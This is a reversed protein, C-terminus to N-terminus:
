SAGSAPDLERAHERAFEEVRDRVEGEPAVELCMEVASRCHPMDGARFYAYVLHELCAEDEPAVHHWKLFNALALPQLWKLDHERALVSFAKGQYFYAMGSSRDDLKADDLNAIISLSLEAVREMEGREYYHWCILFDLTDCYAHMVATITGLLPDFEDNAELFASIAEPRRDDSAYERGIRWLLSGRSNPEKEIELLERLVKGKEKGSMAHENQQLDMLRKPVSMSADSGVYREFIM